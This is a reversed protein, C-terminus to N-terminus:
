PASKLAREYAAESFGYIHTRHIVAFPVDKNDDFEKRKMEADKDSDMNYEVFRANKSNLYDKAKDCDPCNEKTFILININKGKANADTEKVDTQRPSDEKYVKAKKDQPPPYDAIHTVGEDDQWSYFDANAVATFGILLIVLFSSFAKKM